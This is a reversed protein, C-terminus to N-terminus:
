LARANQIDGIIVTGFDLQSARSVTHPIGAAIAAKTLNGLTAVLQTRAPTGPTTPVGLQENVNLIDRVWQREDTSMLNWESQNLLISDFILAVSMYEQDEVVDITNIQDAALQDDVNYAGTVPHGADLENRLAQYQTQNM